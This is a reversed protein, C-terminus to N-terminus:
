VGVDVPDLDLARALRVAGDYSCSRRARGRSEVRLGLAKQVASTDATGNARRYGGREAIGIWTEGRAVRTRAVEQLPALDIREMAFVEMYNVVVDGVSTQARRTLLLSDDGHLSAVAARLAAYRHEKRPARL